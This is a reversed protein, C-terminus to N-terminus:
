PAQTQPAGTLTRSVLMASIRGLNTALDLRVPYGEQTDVWVTYINPKAADDESAVEAYVVAAQRLGGGPGPVSETRAVRFDVPRDKRKSSVTLTFTDGPRLTRHRISYILSTLHHGDAALPRKRRLRLPGKGDKAKYYHLLRHPRDFVFKQHRPTGGSIGLGSILQEEYEIPLLTVADVLVSVQGKMLYAASMAETPRLTYTIRYSPRDAVPRRELPGVDVVVTGADGLGATVRYTMRENPLIKFPLTPRAPAILQRLWGGGYLLAFVAAAAGVAGAAWLIARRRRM